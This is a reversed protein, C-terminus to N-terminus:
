SLYLHSFIVLVTHSINTQELNGTWVDNLKTYGKWMRMVITRVFGSNFIYNVDIFALDMQFHLFYLIISKWRSIPPMCVRLLYLFHISVAKEIIYKADKFAQSELDLYDELFPINRIEM